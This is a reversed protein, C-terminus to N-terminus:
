IFSCHILHKFNFLQEKCFQAKSLLIERSPSPTTRREKLVWVRLYIPYSNSHLPVINEDVVEGEVLVIINDKDPQSFSLVLCIEVLNIKDLPGPLAYLQRLWSAPFMLLSKIPLVIVHKM